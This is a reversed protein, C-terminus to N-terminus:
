PPPPCRGASGPPPPGGSASRLLPPCGGASGPPLPGGGDGMGGLAVATTRTTPHHRSGAGARRDCRRNGLAERETLSLSLPSSSLSPSSFILSLYLHLFLSPFINSLLFLLPYSTFTKFHHPPFVTIFLLYNQM